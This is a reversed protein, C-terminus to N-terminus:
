VLGLVRILVWQGRRRELVARMSTPIRQQRGATDVYEVTLTFVLNASEGGISPASEMQWRVGLGAGTAEAFLTQWQQMERPTIEPYAARLRSISRARLADAYAEVALQVQQADSLVPPRQSDGEQQRERERAEERERALERERERAEPRPAGSSHQGSGGRAADVAPPIPTRRTPTPDTSVPPPSAISGSDRPPSAPGGTVQASDNGATDEDRPGAAPPSAAPPSPQPFLPTRDAGARGTVTLLAVIVGALVLLGVVWPVYRSRAARLREESADVAAEGSSPPEGPESFIHGGFLEDPIRGPTWLPVVSWPDSEGPGQELNFGFVRNTGRDLGLFVTRGSGKQRIGGLVSLAHHGHARLAAEIDQAIEPLPGSGAANGALQRDCYPCRVPWGRVQRECGACVTTGLEHLDFEDAFSCTLPKGPLSSSRSVTVLVLRGGIRERGLFYGARKTGGIDTFYDCKEEIERLVAANVRPM